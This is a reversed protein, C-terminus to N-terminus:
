AICKVVTRASNGVWWRSGEVAAEEVYIIEDALTKITKRQQHKRQITENDNSGARDDQNLELQLNSIINDNNNSDAAAISVNDVSVAQVLMQPDVNSKFRHSSLMNKLLNAFSKSFLCVGGTDPSYEYWTWCCYLMGEM